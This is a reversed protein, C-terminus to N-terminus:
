TNKVRNPYRSSPHDNQNGHSYASRVLLGLGFVSLWRDVLHLHLIHMLGWSLLSMSNVFILWSIMMLGFHEGIIMFLLFLSHLPVMGFFPRM